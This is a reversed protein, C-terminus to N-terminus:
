SDGFDPDAPSPISEPVDGPQYSGEGLFDESMIGYDLSLEELPEIDRTTILFMIGMSTGIKGSSDLVPHKSYRKGKGELLMQERELFYSELNNHPYPQHNVFTGAVNHGHRGKVMGAILQIKQPDRIGDLTQPCAGELFNKAYSRDRIDKPDKAEGAYILVPTGKPLRSNGNYFVGNGSDPGVSSAAVCVKPDESDEPTAWVVPKKPDLFFRRVETTRHQPVEDIMDESSDSVSAHRDYMLKQFSGNMTCVPRPQLVWGTALYPQLVASEPLLISCPWRQICTQLYKLVKEKLTDNETEAYLIRCESLGTDWGVVGTLHDDKFQMVWTSCGSEELCFSPHKAKLYQDVTRKHCPSRSPLPSHKKTTLNITSAVSTSVTPDM